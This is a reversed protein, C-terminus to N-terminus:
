GRCICTDRNFPETGYLGNATRMVKAFLQCLDSNEDKREQATLTDRLWPLLLAMDERTLLFLDGSNIKKIIDTNEM